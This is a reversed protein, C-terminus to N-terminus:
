LFKFGVSLTFTNGKNNFSINTTNADSINTLGWEYHVDFVLAGLDFGAGAWWDWVNDKFYKSNYLGPEVDLGHETFKIQSDKLNITMAPGTFIRLSVLKLNILKYGLMLPVQVSRLDFDQTYTPGEGVYEATPNNDVFTNTSRKVTYLVEPQLFLKRGGLRAFAGIHYGTKADSRLDSLTYANHLVGTTFKQSNIGGIIGLNFTQAYIPFSFVLMAFAFLIKKM